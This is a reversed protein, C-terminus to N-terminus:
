NEEEQEESAKGLTLRDRIGSWSQYSHSVDEWFHKDEVYEFSNRFDEDATFEGGGIYIVLADKNVKQLTKLTKYATNDMYPWSMIVIDVEKGYKEVAKVADIREIETLPPLWGQKDSWSYDDTAIIDVGKQRLAYALWGRGAMVELCKKNGLWKVLPIVWRWSVFAYMGLDTYRERIYFDKTSSLHSEEFPIKRYEQMAKVFNLDNYNSYNDLKLLNPGFDPIEEPIENTFDIGLAIVEELTKAAAIKELNNIM